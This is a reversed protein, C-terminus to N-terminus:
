FGSSAAPHIGLKRTGSEKREASNSRTRKRGGEAKRIVEELRDRSSLSLSLSLSAALNSSRVHSPRRSFTTSTLINVLKLLFILRLSEEGEGQPSSPSASNDTCKAYNIGAYHRGRRQPISLFNECRGTRRPSM